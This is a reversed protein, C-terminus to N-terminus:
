LMGYVKRVVWETTILVCFVGLFVWHTLRTYRNKPDGFLGLQEITTQELKPRPLQEALLAAYPGDLM